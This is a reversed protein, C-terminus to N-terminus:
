CISQKISNYISNYYWDNEKIEDDNLIYLNQYKQTPIEAMNNALFLHNHISNLGLISKEDTPLLILSHKKYM